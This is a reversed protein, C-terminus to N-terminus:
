KPTFILDKTLMHVVSPVQKKQNMFAKSSNSQFDYAVKRNVRTLIWLLDRKTGYEQLMHCLAQVFWSGKASNRWSFYGANSWVYSYPM